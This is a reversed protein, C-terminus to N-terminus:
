TTKARRSMRRGMCAWGWSALSLVGYAAFMIVYPPIPLSYAALASFSVYVGVFYALFLLLGTVNKKNRMALIGGLVAPVLLATQAIMLLLMKTKGYALYWFRPIEYITKRLFQVPNTIVSQIAERQLFLGWEWESIDGGSLRHMERMRTEVYHDLEGMDKQPLFSRDYEMSWNGHWFM